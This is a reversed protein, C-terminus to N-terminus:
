TRLAYFHSWIGWAWARQNAAETASKQSTLDILPHIVSCIPELSMRSFNTRTTKYCRTLPRLSSPQAQQKGPASFSYFKELSFARMHVTNDLAIFGSQGTQDLHPSSFHGRNVQPPPSPPSTQQPTLNSVPNVQRQSELIKYKFSRHAVAARFNENISFSDIIIPFPINNGHCSSTLSPDSAPENSSVNLSQNPAPVIPRYGQQKNQQLQESNHGNVIYYGSFTDVIMPSPGEIGTYARSVATSDPTQCPYTFTPSKSLTDSVFSNIGNNNSNSCINFVSPTVTINSSTVPVFSNTSHSDSSSHNSSRVVPPTATITSSTAHVFSNMSHSSSNSNSCTNFVSLMEAIDSSTARVFSNMSHSGSNSSNNFAPSTANINSSTAREFSHMSHSGSSSYNSFVPSTATVDSTTVHVLSNMITNSSHTNYNNFTLSTANTGSSPVHGSFASSTSILCPRVWEEGESTQPVTDICDSQQSLRGCSSATSTQVQRLSSDCGQSTVPGASEKSSSMRAEAVEGPFIDKRGPTSQMDLKKSIDSAVTRRQQMSRRSDLGSEADSCMQMLATLSSGTSSEPGPTATLLVSNTPTALSEGSSSCTPHIADLHSNRRQPHLLTKSSISPKALPEFCPSPTSRTTQEDTRCSQDARGDNGSSSTKDSPQLTPVNVRDVAVEDVSESDMIEEPSVNTSSVTRQLRRPLYKKRRNVTAKVVTDAPISNKSSDMPSDGYKFLGDLQGNSSYRFSMQEDFGWMWETSEACMLHSDNESPSNRDKHQTAQSKISLSERDNTGNQIKGHVDKGLGTNWDFLLIPELNEFRM